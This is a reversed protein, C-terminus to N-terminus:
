GKNIEEWNNYSAENEFYELTLGDNKDFTNYAIMAMDVESLKM